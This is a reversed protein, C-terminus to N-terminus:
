SEEKRFISNMIQHIISECMYQVVSEIDPEDTISFSPSIWKCKHEEGNFMVTGTLLFEIDQLTRNSKVEWEINKYHVDPYTIATDEFRKVNISM